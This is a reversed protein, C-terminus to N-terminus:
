KRRRLLLVVAVIGLIPVLLAIGAATKAANALPDTVLDTAKDALELAKATAAKAGAAADTAVQKTAGYVTASARPNAALYVAPSWMSAPVGGADKAQQLYSLLMTIDGKDLGTAAVIANRMTFDNAAPKTMGRGLQESAGVYATLFANSLSDYRDRALKVTATSFLSVESSIASRLAGLARDFDTRFIGAGTTQKVYDSGLRVQM